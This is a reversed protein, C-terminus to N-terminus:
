NFICTCALPSQAEKGRKTVVSEYDFKYIDTAMVIAVTLKFM